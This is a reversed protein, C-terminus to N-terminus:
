LKVKSCVVCNSNQSYDQHEFKLNHTWLGIRKNLSQIVGFQGLHRLIDFTALSISLMNIPGTSPAQYNKNISRVMDGITQNENKENAINDQCAICGTKGPIVFPGWVAVDEVYGVNIWPTKKEISYINILDCVDDVDASAIILDAKPLEYLDEIRKIHKKITNVQCENNRAQISTQLVDVKYKGIDAESYLYQRTLNTLEIDDNDVLTLRGIGATALSTALLNGIGGCGLVVVHSKSLKEQVEDSQGGSMLYYLHHRSYRDNRDYIDEPILVNKGVMEDIIDKELQDLSSLENPSVFRSAVKLYKEQLFPLTIEKQISGFGLFLKKSQMGVRFFPALKFKKIMKERQFFFPAM